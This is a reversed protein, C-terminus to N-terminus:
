DAKWSYVLLLSLLRNSCSSSSCCHPERVRRGLAAVHLTLPKRRMTQRPAHLAPAPGGKWARALASSSTQIISSACVRWYVASWRLFSYTFTLSGSRQLNAISLKADTVRLARTAISHRFMTRACALLHTLLHVPALAQRQRSPRGFPMLLLLTAQAPLPCM